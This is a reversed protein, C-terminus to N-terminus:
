RQEWIGPAASIWAMPGFITMPRLVAPTHPKKMSSGHSARSPRLVAPLTRIMAAQRVTQPKQWTGRGM